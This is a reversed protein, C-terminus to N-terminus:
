SFFTVILWLENVRNLVPDSSCRHNATYTKLQDYSYLRVWDIYRVWYDVTLALFAVWKSNCVWGSFVFVDVLCILQWLKSLRSFNHLTTYRQCSVCFFTISFLTIPTTKWEMKWDCWEDNSNPQYMEHCLCVLM